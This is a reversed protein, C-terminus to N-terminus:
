YGAQRCHQALTRVKPNGAGYQARFRGLNACAAAQRATLGAGSRSGRAVSGARARESRELHAQGVTGVMLGPDLAPAVDQAHLAGALMAISLWTGVRLVAERM